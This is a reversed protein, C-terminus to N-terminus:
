LRATPAMDVGISAEPRIAFHNDADYFDGFDPLLEVSDDFAMAADGQLLLEEAWPLGAVHAAAVSPSADQPVVHGGRQSSAM